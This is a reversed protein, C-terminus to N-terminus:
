SLVTPADSEAAVQERMRAWSDEVAPVDFVATGHTRFQHSVVSLEAMLRRLGGLHSPLTVFVLMVGLLLVLLAVVTLLILLFSLFGSFYVALAPLLVVLAAAGMLVGLVTIRTSTWSRLEADMYDKAEAFAETLAADDRASAVSEYNHTAHVHFIMKYAFHLSLQFRSSDRDEVPLNYLTEMSRAGISDATVWVHDVHDGSFTTAEVPQGLAEPLDVLGTLRKLLVVECSSPAVRLDGCLMTLAAGRGRAANIFRAAQLAQSCRSGAHEDESANHQPIFQTVFINAMGLGAVDIRALGIGKGTNYHSQFVQHPHGSCEFREFLADVIPHRSLIYMGSGHSGAYFYLKHSYGADAATRYLADRDLDSYAELLVIVDAVGFNTAKIEDAFFAARRDKKVTASSSGGFLNYYVVSLSRQLFVM